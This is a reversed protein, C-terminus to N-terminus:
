ESVAAIANLISAEKTETSAARWTALPVTKRAQEDSGTRRSVVQCPQYTSDGALHGASVAVNRRVGGAAREEGDAVVDLLVEEVAALATLLHVLGETEGEVVGDADRGLDSGGTHEAAATSVAGDGDELVDLGVEVRVQADVLDDVLLAQEDLAM